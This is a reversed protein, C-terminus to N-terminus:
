DKNNMALKVVYRNRKDSYFLIVRVYFYSSVVEFVSWFMSFTDFFFLGLSVALQSDIM